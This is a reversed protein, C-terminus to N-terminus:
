SHVVLAFMRDIGTCSISIVHNVFETCAVFISYGDHYSRIQFIHRLWPGPCSMSLCNPM